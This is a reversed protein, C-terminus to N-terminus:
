DRKLKRLLFASNPDSNGDFVEVLKGGSAIFLSTPISDIGTLQPGIFEVKLRSENINLVRFPSPFIDPMEVESGEKVYLSGIRIVFM